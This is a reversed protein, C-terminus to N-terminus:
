NDINRKNVKFAVFRCLAACLVSVCAVIWFSSYSGTADFVKAAITGGFAGGVSTATNMIGVLTGYDKDGFLGNVMLPPIITITPGGLGYFLIVLYVLMTPSSPMIFLAGFTCAFLVTILVSSKKVGIKDTVFGMFPKGIILTGLMLGHLSAAKSQDIGCDTFYAVSNALIASSALVVLTASVVAFWFEPTKVAEGFMIGKRGDDNAALKEGEDEGMRTFGKSEPTDNALLLVIIMLIIYVIGLVFYASRWGHTMIISNLIPSLIFGGLGSGLFAIGTATGRIKGGFWKNIIVSVPMPATGAFGIGLIIAFLYFGTLSTCRSFGLYGIFGCICALATWMKVNTKSMLKGLFPSAVVCALSLIVMYTMFDGREFGLDETVPIVFVSTLSVFGVYAFTMLLLGIFVVIWGYFFRGNQTFKIDKM